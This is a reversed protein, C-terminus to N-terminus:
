LYLTLYRTLTMHWRQWFDIISRAKYPSNFNTPFRIGFMRAQGIAM